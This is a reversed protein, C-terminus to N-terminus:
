PRTRNLIGNLYLGEQCTGPTAAGVPTGPQRCEVTLTVRSGAPVRIPTVSHYDQNRFNELGYTVVRVDDATITLTGTDGQPNDVLFDTLLLVRNRPVTYSRSATSGPSTRLTLATAFQGGGTAAAPTPSPSSPPAAPNEAREQAVAQARRAYTARDAQVQVAERTPTQLARELEPEPRIAVVRASVVAVGIDALRAETALADSVAERVPAVTTLAEALPVRALLDLAPQQALEALLTAVQDLPRARARGTRPDVSFDLRGAALAPDAVRYTVTAQVTIDAFDGTRAHFLLPLERDDVPVESLVARLPRYWFSQGVGERRVRGGVHLRVWSTPTGRLHRLFLRRTVDAM